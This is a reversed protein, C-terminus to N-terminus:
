TTHIHYPVWSATVYYYGNSDRSHGCWFVFYLEDARDDMRLLTPVLHRLGDQSHNMSPHLEGKMRSASCRVASRAQHSCHRGLQHFGSTSRELMTPVRPDVTMRSLGHVFQTGGGGRRVQPAIISLLFMTPSQSIYLSSRSANSSSIPVNSSHSMSYKPLNSLLSFIMTVSPSLHHGCVAFCSPPLILLRNKHIIHFFRLSRGFAPPTEM